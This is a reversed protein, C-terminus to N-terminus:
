KRGGRKTLVQKVPSKISKAKVSKVAAFKKVVTVKKGPTKKAVKALREIPKPKVSAKSKSAAVKPNATVAKAKSAIKEKAAAKAKPIAGPKVKLTKVKAVPKTKPKPTPLSLKFSGKVKALKGSAVNKKLNQLLLKKFNAPLQKQKEEIFKAIAYQSSGNKEKLSVIADKIMESYSPHSSPSRPKSAKKTKEAQAKPKHKESALPEPITLKPVTEVIPEKTAM